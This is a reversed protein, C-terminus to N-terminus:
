SRCVWWRALRLSRNLSTVHVLRPLSMRRVAAQIDRTAIFIGNAYSISLKVLAGQSIIVKPTYLVEKHMLLM